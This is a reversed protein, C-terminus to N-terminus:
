NRINAKSAKWGNFERHSDQLEGISTQGDSSCSSDRSRVIGSSRIDDERSIDNGIRYYKSSGRVQIEKLMLKTEQAHNAMWFSNAVGVATIGNFLLSSTSIENAKKSM